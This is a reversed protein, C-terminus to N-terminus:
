GHLMYRLKSSQLSIRLRTNTSPILPLHKPLRLQMPQLQLLNQGVTLRRKCRLGELRDDISTHSRLTAEM